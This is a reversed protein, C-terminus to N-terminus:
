LIRGLPDTVPNEIAQSPLTVASDWAFVEPDLNRVLDDRFFDDLGFVGNLQFFVFPFPLGKEEKGHANSQSILAHAAMLHLHIHPVL